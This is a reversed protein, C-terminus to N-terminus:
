SWQLFPVIPVLYPWEAPSTSVPTSNSQANNVNNNVNNAWMCKMALIPVQENQQSPYNDQSPFHGLGQVLGWSLFTIDRYGPPRIPYKWPLPWVIKYKKFFIIAYYCSCKWKWGKKRIYFCRLTWMLTDERCMYKCQLQVQNKKSKMHCIRPNVVRPNLMVDQTHHSPYQM